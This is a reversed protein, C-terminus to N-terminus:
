QSSAAKVAIDILERESDVECPYPYFRANKDFKERISQAKQPDKQELLAIAYETRIVSPFNKMSMMFKKQQKDLLGSIQGENYGKILRCYILDNILLRRHLDVIASDMGILKDTLQEAEEFRQLDMLRNAALVGTVAIISNKMKEDDPVEFWEEPMDKLRIGQAIQGNVKLQLWFARLAENSKSISITNYGDNDITGLHMPIGNLLGFAIGIIGATLMFVPLYLINRSIMYLAFFIIGSIINMLSGGLNYLVFPIKGDTMNPPVMLCQGGTGAISIKRLKIRGNEKIWMLSGIRFSSFEYGTLLGFILHGSEHIMIQLFLILFLGLLFLVIFLDTMIFLWGQVQGSKKLMTAYRGANYASIFISGFLIFSYLAAFISQGRTKTKKGNKEAM